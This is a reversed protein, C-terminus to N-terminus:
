CSPCRVCRCIRWRAGHVFLTVDDQFHPTWSTLSLPVSSQSLGLDWDHNAGLDLSTIVVSYFQGHTLSSCSILISGRNRFMGSLNLRLYMFLPSHSIHHRMNSFFQTLPNLCCGSSSVKRLGDRNLM